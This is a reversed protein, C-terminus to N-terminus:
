FFTTLDLQLLSQRLPTYDIESTDIYKISVATNEEIGYAAKVWWGRADSGGGHFDSDTYADVVADAELYKYGLQFNWDRVKNIKTWGYLLSIQYGDTRDGVFAAGNTDGSELLKKATKDKDFGINKVYDLNLILHEPAFSAIDFNMTLNILDYDSALAYKKAISGPDTDSSRAINFVTNGKQMFDPATVDQYNTDSANVKGEMNIYNYYSLAFTLNSQDTLIFETGIQTGLLWRDSSSYEFEKLPFVGATFLLTRDRRDMDFLNNSGRLNQRYNFALGDFNIDGDWVLDTSIFPNKFRGVHLDLWPYNDVDVSKWKFAVRDFTVTYKNFEDGLTQNTSVPTNTNGTALRFETSVKESIKAKFGFRARLRMRDRDKTTNLFADRDEPDFIGKNNIHNYDFYEQVSNGDGFAESEMRFRFDSNFTLRNLWTPWSDPIAWAENKAQSMVAAVVDEQMGIRLSDRIEDKVFRPIHNVRVGSFNQAENEADSLQKAQMAKAEFRKNAEHQINNKFLEAAEKKLIKQEVMLDVLEVMKMDNEGLEANMDSGVEIIQDHTGQAPKQVDPIDEALLNSTYFSGVTLIAATSLKINMYWKM